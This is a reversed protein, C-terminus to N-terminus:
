NLIPPHGSRSLKCSDTFGAREGQLFQDRAMIGHLNPPKSIQVAGTRKGAAPFGFAGSLNRLVEDQRQRGHEDLHKTRKVLYRSDEM